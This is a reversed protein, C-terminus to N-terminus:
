VHLLASLASARPYGLPIPHPSFLSPTEPHPSVCTYSHSIWTSTHCFGDCYQLAIIWWNLFSYFVWVRGPLWVARLSVDWIETGLKCSLAWLWSLWAWAPEAKVPDGRTTWLTFFGGAIRSVRIRGRPRSSGRTSPMAVWELITWSFGMSLSAERAVAWPTAFLQVPSLSMVSLSLACVGWRAATQYLIKRNGTLKPQWSSWAM